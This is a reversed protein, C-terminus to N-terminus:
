APFYRGFKSPEFPDRDALCKERRGGARVNVVPHIGQFPQHSVKDSCETIADILGTVKQEHELNKEFIDQPSVFDALPSRSCEESCRFSPPPASALLEPMNAFPFLFNVSCVQSDCFHNSEQRRERRIM